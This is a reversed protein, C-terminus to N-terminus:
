WTVTDLELVYATLCYYYYLLLLAVPLSKPIFYLDLYNDPIVEKIQHLLLHRVVLVALNAYRQKIFGVATSWDRRLSTSSM